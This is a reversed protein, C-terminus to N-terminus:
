LPPCNDGTAQRRACKGDDEQSSPTCSLCTGTSGDIPGKYASQNPCAEQDGYQCTGKEGLDCCRYHPTAQDACWVCLSSGSKFSSHCNYTKKCPCTGDGFSSALASATLARGSVSAAEGSHVSAWICCGVLIFCGVALLKVREERKARYM